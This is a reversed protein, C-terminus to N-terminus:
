VRGYKTYGNYRDTLILQVGDTLTYNSETFMIGNYGHSSVIQKGEQLNACIAATSLADCVASSSGSVSASICYDAQKIYDSLEISWEIGLPLGSKTIIHPVTILNGSQNTFSYNREYDGSTVISNDAKLAVACVTGGGQRPNTVGIRWDVSKNNELRGGVAYINGALTILASKLGAEKAISACEDAIFGKAIAGFDLQAREDSKSVYFNGDIEEGYFLDFDCYSLTAKVTDYPPIVRESDGLLGPTLGWLTMLPMVAPNFHGDTSKHLQKSLEFLARTYAGCQVRENAPASNIKSIDSTPKTTSVQSDIQEIRSTMTNFAHSVTKSNGYAELSFEMGAVVDTTATNYSACGCLLSTLLVLISLLM